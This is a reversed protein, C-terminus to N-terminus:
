ERSGDDGLWRVTEGTIREYIEADTTGQSKPVHFSHDGGEVVHLSWPSAIRNLVSRLKELDCLPDRTGAFFLMPVAIRYLHADRLSEKNGAPHLPYGLFILRDPALLGDAVMQSAIRGGMSKGAAVWSNIRQGLRGSFFAEASRWTEALTEYRDPAKRGHESYLFNFRLTPYGARALGESFTKLLPTEMDNGAGHAVIIGARKTERAPLSLLGSTRESGGVPISVRQEAIEM